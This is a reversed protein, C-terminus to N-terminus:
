AATPGNIVAATATAQPPLALLAAMCLRHPGDIDIAVRVRHQQLDLLGARSAMLSVPAAEKALRCQLSELDDRRPEGIRFFDVLRALVKSVSLQGSYEHANMATM